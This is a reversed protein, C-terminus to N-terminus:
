DVTPATSKKICYKTIKSVNAGELLCRFGNLYHLVMFSYDQPCLNNKNMIYEGKETSFINYVLVM